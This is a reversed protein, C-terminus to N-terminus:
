IPLASFSSPSAPGLLRFDSAPAKSSWRVLTARRGLLYPAPAGSISALVGDSRYCWTGPGGAFPPEHLCALRGFHASRAEYTTLKSLTLAPTSRPDALAALAQAMSGPLFAYTSLFFGNSPAYTVPGGCRSFRPSTRRLCESSQIGRELWQYIDGNDLRVLFTWEGHGAPFPAEGRPARQAIRLTGRVSSSTGIEYTASFTGTAGQHALAALKQVQAASVPRPSASSTAPLLAITAVAVVSVSIARLRM